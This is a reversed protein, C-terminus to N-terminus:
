QKIDGKVGNTKTIKYYIYTDGVNYYRQSFLFSDFLGLLVGMVIWSSASVNAGILSQSNFLTEFIVLALPFGFFLRGFLFLLPVYFQPFLQVKEEERRLNVDLKGLYKTETWWTLFRVGSILIVTPLAVMLVAPFGVVHSSDSFSAGISSLIPNIVGVLVIGVIVGLPALKRNKQRKAKQEPTLTGLQLLSLGNTELQESTIEWIPHKFYKAIISFPLWYTIWPKSLNILYLAENKKLVYYRDTMIFYSLRALGGKQWPYIIKYLAGWDEFPISKQKTM